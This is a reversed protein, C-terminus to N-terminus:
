VAAESPRISLTSVLFIVDKEEELVENMFKAMMFTKGSGTPAKFVVDVLKNQRNIVLLEDVARNQLDIAEQLM